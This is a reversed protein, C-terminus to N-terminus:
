THVLEVEGYETIQTPTTGLMPTKSDTESHLRYCLVQTTQSKWPVGKVLLEIAKLINKLILNIKHFSFYM